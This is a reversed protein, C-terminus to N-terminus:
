KKDSKKCSVTRPTLTVKAGNTRHVEEKTISAVAVTWDCHDQVLQVELAGKPGPLSIHFTGDRGTTTVAVPQVNPMGDLSIRYTVERIIITGDIVPSGDDLTASGSLEFANVPSSAIALAFLVTRTSTDWPRISKHAM